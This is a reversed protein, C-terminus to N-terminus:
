SYELLIKLFLLIDTNTWETIFKGYRYLINIPFSHPPPLPLRYSREANVTWNKQLGLDARFFM